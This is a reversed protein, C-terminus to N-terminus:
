RSHVSGAEGISVNFNAAECAASNALDDFMATMMYGASTFSWCSGSMVSRTVCNDRWIM